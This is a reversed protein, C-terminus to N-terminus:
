KRRGYRVEARKDHKGRVPSKRFNLALVDQREHHIDGARKAKALDARIRSTPIKDGKPIGLRKHLAGKKIGM